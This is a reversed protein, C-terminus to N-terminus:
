LDILISPRKMGLPGRAEQRATLCIGALTDRKVSVAMQSVSFLSILRIIQLWLLRYITFSSCCCDDARDLGLTLQKQSHWYLFFPLIKHQGPANQKYKVFM